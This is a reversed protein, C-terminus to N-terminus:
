PESRRRLDEFLCVAAAAAVNLSEVAGPMPIRVRCTALASVEASVGAGESGLVWACPHQWQAQYLPVSADLATVVVAGGHQRYQRIFAPLDAGDLLNLIFHAGQAARLVKPSWVQACTPSLLVQQIGVAAATRLLTGVNGADQVGDLLLVDASYDIPKPQPRPASAIVGDPTVLTSLQAFLEDAVTVKHLATTKEWLEAGERGAVARESMALVTLPAAHTAGQSTGNADLYARLLHLGDFFIEGSKRRAHASQALQQLHRWLPNARSSLHSVRAFQSM